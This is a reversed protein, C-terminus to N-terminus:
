LQIDTSYIYCFTFLDGVLALVLKADAIMEDLNFRVSHPLCDNFFPTCPISDPFVQKWIIEQEEVLTLLMGLEDLIDKIERLLRVEERINNHSDLHEDEDRDLSELFCDYLLSEKETQTNILFTELSQNLRSGVVDRISERFVNLVSKSVQSNLPINEQRFFAMQVGLVFEVMDDVTHLLPRKGSRECSAIGEFVTDVFEVHQDTTASIM